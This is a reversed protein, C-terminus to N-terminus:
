RSVKRQQLGPALHIVAHPSKTQLEHILDAVFTGFLTPSLRSGEPLGRRIDVTQHEQINPHLVRLRINDIRARLHHWMHGVIDNHLLIPSLRDRHVSPYATSYGARDVFAEYTRKELTHKNYQITSILSYIADHTQTCPKTGLQNSTLTNGLETHTTLRALRLGEFLKALTDNLYIVRYSATTKTM